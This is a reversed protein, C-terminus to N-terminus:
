RDYRRFRCIPTHLHRSGCRGVHCRCQGAMWRTMARAVLWRTVALVRSSLRMSMPLWGTMASAPSPTASTVDNAQHGISSTSAAARFPMLRPASGTPPRNWVTWSSPMASGTRPFQHRPKFVADSYHQLARRQLQFVACCPPVISTLNTLTNAFSESSSLIAM